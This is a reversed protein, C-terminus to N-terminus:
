RIKLFQGTNGAVFPLIFNGYFSAPDSSRIKSIDSCIVPLFFFMPFIWEEGKVILQLDLSSQFHEIAKELFHFGFWAFYQKRYFTCHQGKFEM